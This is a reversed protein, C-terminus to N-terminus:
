SSHYFSSSKQVMMDTEINGTALRLNNQSEIMPSVDHNLPISRVESDNIITSQGYM